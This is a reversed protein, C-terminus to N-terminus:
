NVRRKWDLFAYLEYALLLLCFISYLVLFTLGISLLINWDLSLSQKLTTKTFFLILLSVIILILMPLVICFIRKRLDELQQLEAKLVETMPKKDSETLTHKKAILEIIKAILGENIEKYSDNITGVQHISIAVMIAVLAGFASVISSSMLFLTEENFLFILSFLYGFILSAILFILFWILTFQITKKMKDIPATTAMFNNGM